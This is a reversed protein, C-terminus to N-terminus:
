GEPRPRQDGQDAHEREDAIEARLRPLYNPFERAIFITLGERVRCRLDWNLSSDTSTVLARLQMGKDNCDTVQLLALRKDWEPAGQCIRTLEARLPEIPMRYDVWWFVSGILAASSRTWNQFPNEIFWQLPVILQREDWLRVVVFAGTIEQVRGWEGQVVLVDDLRIPQTLAIQMGAIVNGLVPRAALGAVLGAVGASALLSAGLQRVSPFTMLAGAVGIVFVFAMLTRGLVNAQTQLRRAQLNDTRDSPNLLVLTAVAANIIRLGLWTLGAIMALATAHRVAGILLLHESAHEWVFDLTTVVALFRLPARTRRLFAAAITFRGAVPRVLLSLISFVIVAAFAAVGATILCDLWPHGTISLAGLADDVADNASGVLL